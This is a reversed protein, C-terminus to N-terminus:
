DSSREGPYIQCQWPSWLGDGCLGSLGFVWHLLYLQRPLGWFWSLFDSFAMWNQHWSRQDTCRPRSWKALNWGTGQHDFWKPIRWHCERRRSSPHKWSHIGPGSLGLLSEPAFRQSWWWSSVLDGEHHISLTWFYMLIFIHTFTMEPSQRMKQVLSRRLVLLM